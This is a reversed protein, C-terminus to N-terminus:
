KARMDKKQKRKILVIPLTVGFLSLLLYTVTFGNTVQAPQLYEPIDVATKLYDLVKSQTLSFTENMSAIIQESVDALLLTYPDIELTPDRVSVMPKVRIEPALGKQANLSSYLANLTIDLSMTLNYYVNLKYFSSKNLMVRTNVNIVNVDETKGLKTLASEIGTLSEGDLITVITDIDRDKKLEAEVKSAVLDPASLNNPVVISTHTNRDIYYTGAIFSAYM